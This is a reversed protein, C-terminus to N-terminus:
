KELYEPVYLVSVVNPHPSSIPSSLDYPSHTYNFKNVTFLFLTFYTLKFILVQLVIFPIMGYDYVPADSASMVHQRVCLQGAPCM